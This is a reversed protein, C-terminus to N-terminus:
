EYMEKLFEYLVKCHEDFLSIVDLNNNERNKQALCIHNIEYYVEITEWSHNNKFEQKITM